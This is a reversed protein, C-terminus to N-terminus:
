PQNTRARLHGVIRGLRRIATALSGVAIVILAASILGWTAGAVAWAPRWSSPVLGLYLAALTLVFMRHPKAMPGCFEQPTGLGRGVARVYATLVAALAALYGWGPSGGAAFGAGVLGAVDSVRDPIENYLEGLVSARGSEVAVMGDLMNALLRLQILVAAALWAARVGVPGAMATAALALGAGVGCAMGAISIANATIGRRALGHALGRSVPWARAAIPRREEVHYPEVAMPTVKGVIVGGVIPFGDGIAATASIKM